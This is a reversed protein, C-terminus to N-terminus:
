ILNMTFISFFLLMLALQIMAALMSDSGAFGTFMHYATLLFYFATFIYIPRFAQLKELNCFVRCIVIIFTLVSLVVAPFTSLSIGGFITLVILLLPSSILVPLLLLGIFSAFMITTGGVFSAAGAMIGCLFALIYIKLPKKNLSYDIRINFFKCLGGFVFASLM